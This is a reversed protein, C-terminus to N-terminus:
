GRRVNVARTAPTTNGTVRVSLVLPVTGFPPVQAIPPVTVQIETASTVSVPLPPEGPAPVTDGTSPFVCQVVNNAALAAFNQGEIVAIRTGSAATFIINTLDPRGLPFVGTITPAPAAPVAAPLLRLPRPQSEGTSNEVQITVDTPAGINIATPVIFSLRTTSSDFLFNVVQVNIAGGAIRVTNTPVNLPGVPPFMFGRGVIALTDGVMVEGDPDLGTIAVPDNTQGISGALEEIRDEAAALRKLVDNILASSIIDGPRVEVFDSAM